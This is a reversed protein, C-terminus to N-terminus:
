FGVMGVMLRNLPIGGMSGFFPANFSFIGGDSAVFRYGSGNATEALGVIPRNLPIGGM